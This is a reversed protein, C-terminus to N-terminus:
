RLYDVKESQVAWDTARTVFVQDKFEIEITDPRREDTRVCLVDGKAVTRDGDGHIHLREPTSPSVWRPGTIAFPLRAKVFWIDRTDRNFWMELKRHLVNETTNPAVIFERMLPKIFLDFIKLVSETRAIGARGKKTSRAM